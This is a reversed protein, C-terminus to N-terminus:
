EYQENNIVKYPIKYSSLALKLANLVLSRNRVTNLLKKLLENLEKTKENEPLVKVNEEDIILPQEIGKIHSKITLVLLDKLYNTLDNITKELEIIAPHKKM